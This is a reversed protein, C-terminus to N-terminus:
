ISELIDFEVKNLKTVGRPIVGSLDDPYVKIEGASDQGFTCTEIVLEAQWKLNCKYVQTASPLHIVVFM